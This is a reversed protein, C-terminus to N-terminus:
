APLWSSAEVPHLIKRQLVPCLDQFIFRLFFRFLFLFLCLRSDGRASMLAPLKGSVPVPCGSPLYGFLPYRDPLRSWLRPYHCSWLCYWGNHCFPSWSSSLRFSVGSWSSSRFWSPACTGSLAVGVCRRLRFRCLFRLFVM